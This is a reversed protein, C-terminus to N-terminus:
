RWFGEPVKVGECSSDPPKGVIEILAHRNNGDTRPDELPTTGQGQMFLVNPSLGLWQLYAAAGLAREDSLSQTGAEAIEGREAYGESIAAEVSCWKEHRVRDTREQLKRKEDDALQSSGPAFDIVADLSRQPSTLSHTEFAPGVLLAGAAIWATTRILGM